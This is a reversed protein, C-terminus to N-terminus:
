SPDSVAGISLGADKEESLGVLTGTNLQLKPNRKSHVLVKVRLETLAQV